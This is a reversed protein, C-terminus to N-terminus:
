HVFILAINLEQDANYLLTGCLEASPDTRNLINRFLKKKMNFSETTQLSGSKCSAVGQGTINAMILRQHM